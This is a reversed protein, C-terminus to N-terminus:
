RCSKLVYHLEWTLSTVPRSVVLPGPSSPALGRGQTDPLEMPTPQPWATVDGQPDLGPDARRHGHGSVAPVCRPCPGTPCGRNLLLEWPLSPHGKSLGRATKSLKRWPWWSQEKWAPGPCGFEWSPSSHM